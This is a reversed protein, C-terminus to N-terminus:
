ERVVSQKGKESHNNGHAFLVFPNTFTKTFGSSAKQCSQVLARFLSRSAKLAGFLNCVRFLRRSCRNLASGGTPTRSSSQQSRVIIAPSTKGAPISGSNARGSGFRIRVTTRVPASDGSVVDASQPIPFSAIM